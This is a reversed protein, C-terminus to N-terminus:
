QRGRSGGAQAAEEQLERQQVQLAGRLRGGQQSRGAQGVRQLHVALVHPGQRQLVVGGVRQVVQLVGAGPQSLHARCREMGALWPICARRCAHSGPEAPRHMAVPVAM